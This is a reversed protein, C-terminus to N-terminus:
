HSLLVLPPDAEVGGPARGLQQGRRPAPSGSFSLEGVSRCAARRRNLGSRVKEGHLTREIIGRKTKTKHKNMGNDDGNDDDGATEPRSGSEDEVPADPEEFGRSM